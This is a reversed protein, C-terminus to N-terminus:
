LWLIYKKKLDWLFWIDWREVIVFLYFVEFIEWDWNLDLLLLFGEDGCEGFKMRYIVDEVEKRGEIINFVWNM